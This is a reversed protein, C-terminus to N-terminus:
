ASALGQGSGESHEMVVRARALFVELTFVQATPEDAGVLRLMPARYPTDEIPQYRARREDLSIVDATNM